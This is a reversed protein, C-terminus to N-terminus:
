NGKRTQLIGMLDDGELGEVRRGNATQAVWDRLVPVLLPKVSAKRNSKYAPYFDFRWNRTDTLCVIADDCGAQATVTKLSDQLKVWAEDSHAHRTHLVDGDGYPWAITMECQAAAEYILIDGDILATTMPHTNRCLRG